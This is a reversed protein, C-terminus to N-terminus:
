NTETGHAARYKREPYLAVIMNINRVVDLLATARNNGFGLYEHGYPKGDVGDVPAAWFYYGYINHSCGVWIGAAQSIQAAVRHARTMGRRHKRNKKMWNKM